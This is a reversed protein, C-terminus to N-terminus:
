PIISSYNQISLLTNISAIHVQYVPFVARDDGQYKAVHPKLPMARNHTNCFEYIDDAM